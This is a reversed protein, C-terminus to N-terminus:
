LYVLRISISKKNILIVVAYVSGSPAVILGYCRIPPNVYEQLFQRAAIKPFYSHSQDPLRHPSM